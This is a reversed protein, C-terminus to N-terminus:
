LFVQYLIGYVERSAFPMYGNWPTKSPYSHPILGCKEAFKGARYEHFDNTIVTINNDTIGNEQLIKLSYNFNQQTNTSKDEIFLRSPDIGKETLSRFMCEAESINEGAGQGGSLVAVAEPNKSLYDYAANIRSRLFPGPSEGNVKCGLVIATNSQAESKTSGYLVCGFAAGSAIICCALVASIAGTIIKGAKNATIKCLVANIKDFFAAYILATCALAFGTLLGINIQGTTIVPGIYLLTFAAAAAALIIRIIIKSKKKM